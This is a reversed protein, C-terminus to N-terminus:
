VLACFAYLATPCSLLRQLLQQLQHSPPFGGSSAPLRQEGAQDGSLSSFVYVM